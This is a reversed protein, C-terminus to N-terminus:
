RGEDLGEIEARRLYLLLLGPIAILVTIVFFSPWGLSQVLPPTLPGALYTRGVASLASLLAFQTASFEQKCLAMLLAVFAATGLGGCLNEVAVVLAMSYLHPPTVALVWYGFNSVGQLIGFLMLSRYLGLKAMLAGGALAGIITAALGFVKNVAGVESVSFGAGRLLFTTSLAGAFADGLKYLVILLLITIAGRRKFFEVLPEVVALALSRPASAVLEPEPALLTAVACLAMFGGMLFYMNEWGLWHDALVLALGGSVIMALRYGLVKVAAGAAREEKRLVDTSYADFAIDQTASLFAVFVALLALLALNGAPSFLGMAAISAALLLQTVFIWGRRRGLFPPAYRDVLPAWLFKLTYASGVLTLFGINQLSVNAVTAWAQLTGGTLALPLGSAFGLM